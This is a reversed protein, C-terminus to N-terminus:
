INFNSKKQIYTYVDIDTIKLFTLVDSMSQRNDKVRLLKNYIFDELNIIGSSGPNDSCSMYELSGFMSFDYILNSVCFLGTYIPLGMTTEKNIDFILNNNFMLNNCSDPFDDISTLNNGSCDFDGKVSGFKFPLNFLGMNSIDVNHYVDVVGNHHINYKSIGYYELSSEIMSLREKSIHIKQIM